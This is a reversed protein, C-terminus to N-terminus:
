HGRIQAHSSHRLVLPKAGRPWADSRRPSRSTPSQLSDRARLPPVITIALLFIIWVPHVVKFAAETLNYVLASIFFAIRLTGDIRQQQWSRVINRYGWAILMGLAGVGVWGLNLYMELYGNHAQNPHWWYMDWLAKAREGLWFSEFGAGVIANGPWRVLEAWLATRTTLTADRGAAQVLGVDTDLMVGYVCAAVLGWALAHLAMPWAVSWRSSAFVMVAGGVLFCGLATASDAMSFLWLTAALALGLAVLSKTAHRGWDRLVTLLQWLFTLGFVLCVIGLGNKNTAVGGNYARGSWSDFGRGMEPFYKILLASLPILLFGTRCLFEKVAARPDPDTVVVLVMLVNGIAKTWRKFAVFPYDSWVVSILCYTFFLLLPANSRLVDRTRAWRDTLVKVAALELGAFMLADVLSGDLYQDPSDM